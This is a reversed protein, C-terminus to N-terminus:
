KLFVNNFQNMILEPSYMSYANWNEHKNIIDPFNTLIGILEDYNNYIISKDGLMEIHALDNFGSDCWTTTIIPKNKLSFEAVTLGFSEGGNRAHLCADCTNIFGIKTAMDSTGSIFFVNPEDCFQNSNMFLFYVNKNSRATNIVAEKAFPINFSDPGGYYGFVLATTPINFFERYNEMHDYKLIDVIHPVYPLTGGTMQTSLWKSVYAYVDGHPDHLQFVSHVLNKANPVLKGDNMGAKIYYVADIQNQDIYSIVDDFKDYLFVNFQKQFKDLAALDSNRNSIIVSDNNLLEQNYYAYDFLAIETGRLGLQESHFAIKM